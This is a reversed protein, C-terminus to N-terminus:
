SGPMENILMSLATINEGDDNIASCKVASKWTDDEEWPHTLIAVAVDRASFDGYAYQCVFQHQFPALVIPMASLM